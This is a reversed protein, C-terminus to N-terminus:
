AILETMYKSSTDPFQSVYEGTPKEVTKAFGRLVKISSEAVCGATELDGKELYAWSANIWALALDERDREKDFIDPHDERVKIGRLHYNLSEEVRSLALTANGLSMYVVALSRYREPSDTTQLPIDLARLHMQHAEQNMNSNRYIAGCIRYLSMLAYPDKNQHLQCAKEAVTFLSLATKM